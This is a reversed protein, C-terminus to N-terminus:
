VGGLVEEGGSLSSSVAHVRVHVTKRKKHAQLDLINVRVRSQRKCELWDAVLLKRTGGEGVGGGM